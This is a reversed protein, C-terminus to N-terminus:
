SCCSLYKKEEYSVGWDNKEWRQRRISQSIETRVDALFYSGSCSIKITPFHCPYTEWPVCLCMQFTFILPEACLVNGNSIFSSKKIRMQLATDSPQLLCLSAIKPFNRTRFDMYVSLSCEATRAPIWPPSVKTVQFDKSNDRTLKLWCVRVYSAFMGIQVYVCGRRKYTTSVNPEPELQFCCTWSFRWSVKEVHVTFLFNEEVEGERRADRRPLANTGSTTSISVSSLISDILLWWVRTVSRALAGIFIM